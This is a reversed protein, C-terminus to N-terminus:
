PLDKDIAIEREETASYIHELSANGALTEAPQGDVLFRVAVVQPLSSHLTAVLSRLTLMETALGQPHHETFSRDLNIVAVLPKGTRADPSELAPVDIPLLYADDVPGSASASLASPVPHAAQPAAYEALLAQLVFRARANPTTPAPLEKQVEHLSNDADNAVFLKISELEAHSPAVLPADAMNAILRDQTAHRLHLLEAAMLVTAALFLVFLVKQYRPIM